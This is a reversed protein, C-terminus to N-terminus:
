PLETVEGDHIESESNPNIATFERFRQGNKTHTKEVWCGRPPNEAALMDFAQRVDPANRYPKIKAALVDGVKVAGGQRGLWSYLADLGQRENTAITWAFIHEASEQGYRWIAIATKVHKASIKRSRDLVAEVLATRKVIALARTFLHELPSTEILEDHYRNFDRMAERASADLVFEVGATSFAPQLSALWDKSTKIEAACERVLQQRNAEISAQQEETWSDEDIRKRRHSCFFEFRNLLGNHLDRPKVLEQFELQTIHGLISLHTDTAVFSAKEDVVLRSLPVDDFAKRLVASLISGDRSGAMLLSAFEQAALLCRKDASVFQLPDDGEGDDDAAETPKLREPDRLRSIIAEGSAVDQAIKTAYWDPDVLKFPAIAIAHATGKRGHNSRGVFLRNSKMHHQVSGANFWAGRGLMNGAMLSMHALVANRDAETHPDCSLVYRGLCSDFAEDAMELTWSERLPKPSASAPLLIIPFQNEVMLSGADRDEEATSRAESWKRLYGQPGNKEWPPESRETAFEASIALGQKGVLGNRILFHNVALLAASGNSGEISRPMALAQERIRDFEASREALLDESEGAEGKAAALLARFMPEPMPATPTDFPSNIWERTFGDTTGPPVISQTAGDIGLRFEARGVHVVNNTRAALLQKWQDESLKYLRHNGRRSTWSVTKVAGGQSELEAEDADIFAAREEPTTDRLIPKGNADLEGTPAKLPADVERDIYDGCLPGFKWGPNLSPDRDFWENIRAPTWEYDQWRAGVIGSNKGKALIIPWGLTFLLHATERCNYNRQPMPIPSFLISLPYM